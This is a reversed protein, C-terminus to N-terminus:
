PAPPATLAALADNLQGLAVSAEGAKTQADAVFPAAALEAAILAVLKGTLAACMAEGSVAEDWAARAEAVLAVHSAAAAQALDSATKKTRYTEVKALVDDIQDQTPM